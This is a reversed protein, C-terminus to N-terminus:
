WLSFGSGSRSPARRRRGERRRHRMRSQLEQRRTELWDEKDLEAPEVGRRRAEAERYMRFDEYAELEHKLEKCILEVMIADDLYGLGPVSDHILDEPDAFYALASLVRGREPEDLGWGADSVMAIIGELRDIRESIFDPVETGRVKELIARAQEIVDNEGLNAYAERTEQMHDKFHQLDRDSLEFTIQMTMSTVRQKTETCAHLGAANGDM